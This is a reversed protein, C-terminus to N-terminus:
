CRGRPAGRGVGRPQVPLRFGRLDLRVQAPERPLVDGRRIAARSVFREGITLGRADARVRVPKVWPRWNRVYVGWTGFLFQSAMLAALSWAGRTLLHATYVVWLATFLGLIWPNRRVLACSEPEFRPSM